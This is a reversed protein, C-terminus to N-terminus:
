KVEMENLIKTANKGSEKYIALLHNTLEESNLNQLMTVAEIILPLNLGTLVTFNYDRSLSLFTSCPTGGFLDVLCLYKTNKDLNEELLEKYEEFSMSPDLSFVSVNEIKGIIMEASKLLEEGFYGHTGILIKNFM